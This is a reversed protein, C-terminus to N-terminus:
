KIVEEQLRNRYIIANNVIDHDLSNLQEDIFNRLSNYSEIDNNVSYGVWYQELKRGIDAANKSIEALRM